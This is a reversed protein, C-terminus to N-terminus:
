ARTDGAREGVQSVGGWQVPGDLIPAQSWAWHKHGQTPPQGEQAEKRSQLLVNLALGPNHQEAWLGVGQLHQAASQMEVKRRPPTDWHGQEWSAGQLNLPRLM